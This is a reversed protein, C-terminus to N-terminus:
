VLAWLTLAHMPAVCRPRWPFYVAKDAYKVDKGVDLKGQVGVVFATAFNNSHFPAPFPNM